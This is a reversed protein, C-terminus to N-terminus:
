CTLATPDINTIEYGTNVTRGLSDRVRVTGSGNETFPIVTGSYRTSNNLSYEYVQSGGILILTLNVLQTPTTPYYIMNTITLECPTVLRNDHVLCRDPQNDSFTAKNATPIPLGGILSPVRTTLTFSSSNFANLFNNAQDVQPLSFAPRQFSSSLRTIKGNHNFSQLFGNGVTTVGSM